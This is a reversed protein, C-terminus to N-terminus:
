HEMECISTPDTRRRQWDNFSSSGGAPGPTLSMVGGSIIFHTRGFDTSCLPQPTCGPLVLLYPMWPNQDCEILIRM